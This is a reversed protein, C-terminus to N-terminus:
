GHCQSALRDKVGSCIKKLQGLGKGLLWIGMQTFIYQIIFICIFIDMGLLFEVNGGYLKCTLLPVPQIILPESQGSYSLTGRCM